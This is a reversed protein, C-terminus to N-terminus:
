PLHYFNYASLFVPRTLAIESASCLACVGLLAAWGARSAWPAPLM